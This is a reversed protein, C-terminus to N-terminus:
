AQTRHAARASLLEAFYDAAYRFTREAATKNYERGMEIEKKADFTGTKVDTFSHKGTGFFLFSWDDVDAEQMERAFSELLEPPVQPDLYGHLVLFHKCQIANSLDSKQLVAHVPVVAKIDAGGRALELACMGGFCFGIAGINNKDIITQQLLVDYALQSRRRVLSRDELFPTILAFCGDITDATKGGGYIDAVFVVYGLEALSKGYDTAFESVGEFAPYLLIAPAQGSINESYFLQGVLEENNDKYTITEQHM